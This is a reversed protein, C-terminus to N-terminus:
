DSILYFDENVRAVIVKEGICYDKKGIYPCVTQGKLGRIWYGNDIVAEIEGEFFEYDRHRITIATSLIEYVLFGPTMVCALIISSGFFLVTNFYEELHLKILILIHFVVVFAIISFPLLICPKTWLKKLFRKKLGDSVTMPTLAHIDVAVKEQFRADPQM